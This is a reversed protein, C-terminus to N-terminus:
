QFSASAGGVGGTLPTNTSAQSTTNVPTANAGTVPISPNEPNNREGRRHNSKSARNAKIANRQALTLDRSIYVNHFDTSDKLEKAVRMIDVRAAKDKFTVRFMGKDPCICHVSDIQPTSNLLFQYVVRFKDSFQPITGAGTGRVIISSVRKKREEFEFMEAFLDKRSVLADDDVQPASATRQPQNQQNQLLSNVTLNMQSVSAALSKVVELVQNVAVRWEGDAVPASSGSPVPQCRCTTCKYTIGGSDEELLAKITSLKIGTCQPTPHYSLNCHGCDVCEGSLLCGCLGCSKCGLLSAMHIVQDTRVQGSEAQNTDTTSTPQTPGTSRLKRDTMAPPKSSATDESKSFKEGPGITPATPSISLLRKM